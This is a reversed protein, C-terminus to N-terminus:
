RSEISLSSIQGDNDLSLLGQIAKQDASKGPRLRLYFSDSDEDYAYRLGDGETPVCRNIAKLSNKGAHFILNLIEVGIVDGSQDLDLVM